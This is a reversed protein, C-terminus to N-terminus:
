MNYTYTHKVKESEVVKKGKELVRKSSSFVKLRASSLIVTSVTKSQIAFSFVDYGCFNPSIASSNSLQSM